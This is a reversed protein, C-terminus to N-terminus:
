EKKPKLLFVRNGPVEQLYKEYLEPHEAQFRKSDFTKRTKSAKWTCIVDDGDMVATKDQMIEKIKFITEDLSKEATAVMAKYEQAMGLYLKLMSEAQIVDGSDKPYKYGLEAQNIPKPMEDNLVYRQYWSKAFNLLVEGYEYDYDFNKYGFELNGDLWAISVTWIPPKEPYCSNIVAAQFQAQLFWNAPLDEADVKFRTTKCELLGDKYTFDPSASAHFLHNRYTKPIDQDIELGTEKKFWDRIIPELLLGRETAANGQFEEQRGTKVKWVDIPTMWKNLGMIAGIESSGITKSRGEHWGEGKTPVIECHDPFQGSTESQGQGQSQKQGQGQEQGSPQKKNGMAKLIKLNLFKM